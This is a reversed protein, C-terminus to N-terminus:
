AAEHSHTIFDACRTRGAPAMERHGSPDRCFWGDEIGHVILWAGAILNIPWRERLLKGTRPRIRAIRALRIGGNRLLAESRDAPEDAGLLALITRATAIEIRGSRYGRSCHVPSELAVAVASAMREEDTLEHTEMLHRWYAETM